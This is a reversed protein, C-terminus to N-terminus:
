GGCSVYGKDGGAPSDPERPPAGSSRQEAPRRRSQGVVTPQSGSPLPNEATEVPYFLQPHGWEFWSREYLRVDEFGMLRLIFYGFSSRRASHCYTVVAKSPALGQYLQLLAAYSKVAKSQSDIWNRRYDVNYATPIHGLKLVQGDLGVNPKEGRYEERSRVDLIQYYEDGLRAEIFDGEVWRNLRISEAPAQYLTPEPSRAEAATKGGNDVWAEIGRELIKKDPHGLLDLVWFVYSATAGGDRELSDYLVVTDGSAIGHEGLIEQAADLGVFRGGIGRARDVTRFLGWPLRIADPILRGDFHKDTRVDVIILRPDDRHAELWQATALLEARPYDSPTENRASAVTWYVGLLLIAAIAAYRIIRGTQM